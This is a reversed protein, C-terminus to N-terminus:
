SLPRGDVDGDEQKRLIIEDRADYNGAGLVEKKVKHYHMDFRTEKIRSTGESIAFM